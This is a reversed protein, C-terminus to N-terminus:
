LAKTRMAPLGRGREHPRLFCSYAIRYLWTSFKAEGRFQDLKRLGILHWFRLTQGMDSQTSDSDMAVRLGTILPSAEQSIIRNARAAM